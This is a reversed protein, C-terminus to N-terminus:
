EDDEEDLIDGMTSGNDEEESSDDDGRNRRRKTDLERQEEMEIELMQEKSLEFIKASAKEDLM